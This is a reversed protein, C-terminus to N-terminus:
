VAADILQQIFRAHAVADDISCLAPKLRGAEVNAHFALLEQAFAEEYSVIIRKEWALEGEHGQVIVPSPFHLFYPSPLQMIVRDHNGFFAYEERYDKLHHLSHWDISVQLNGSYEVLGHISLGGRWVAMSVVRKPAGLFGHLTYVQHILSVTLMGYAARLRRDDKRAGLAEDVLGTLTGGALGNAADEIQEELTSEDPIHGERFKEGGLRIRHPSHGFSDSPHLVTIRGYGVDQMKELQAKAYAFAPDHLKHYGMQLVRDTKNAVAAVEEVERLNWALPKEVFVHKGAELAAITTDRHSGSHCIVVADIDDRRVLERWDTHRGAVRYHDGVSHLLPEFLDALAVLEFKEDYRFLHPVHAIQAITGCGIVGVRLKSM